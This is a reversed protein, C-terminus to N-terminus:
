KQGKCGRCTEENRELLVVMEFKVIPQKKDEKGTGRRGFRVSAVTARWEECNKTLLMRGDAGLILRKLIAMSLERSSCATMLWGARTLKVVVEAVSTGIGSVKKQVM